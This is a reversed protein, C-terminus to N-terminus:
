YMGLEENNNVLLHKFIDAYLMIICTLLGMLICVGFDKFGLFLCLCIVVAEIVCIIRAKRRFVIFEEDDFPKNDDARPACIFVIVSSLILLLVCVATNWHFFKMATLAFSIIVVSSIYCRLTTRAHYGGVFSRLPIYAIMYLISHWVMGFLFGLLVTTAFNLLILIGQEIGYTVIEKDDEGITNSKVLSEVFGEILLLKM